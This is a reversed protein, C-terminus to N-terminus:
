RRGTPCHDAPTEASEDAVPERALRDWLNALFRAVVACRAQTGALTFAGAAFVRAGARTEYYTMEASRRARFVHPITALIRLSKPSARAQHDAEIGFSAFSDGNELGTGDFLWPAVNAGRVVYPTSRYKDQNWTFYQVGVLAAEPRGLNRWLKIRTIRNGKRNVRWYFNNASLFALDGGLDRYRQVVDYERKTVYENHGPYVILRYLRALRGGSVRELDEESLMDARRGTHALWRLFGLDYRRFQPPVGRNLYPRRLNITSSNGHDYCTDPRGDGDADRYNYAGWTNTPLVVAVPQAGLRAPRVIFPAFGVKRGSTLRAAYLGSEWASIRIRVSGQDGRVRFPRRVRVGKLTDDGVTLQQEPGVHLLEVRVHRYRGWLNLVAIEGPRYSRRDFAAVVARADTSRPKGRRSAAPQAAVVGLLV